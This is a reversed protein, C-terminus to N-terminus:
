LYGPLEAVKDAQAVYLLAEMRWQHFPLFMGKTRKM